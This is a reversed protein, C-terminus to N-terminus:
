RCLPQGEFALMLQKNKNIIEFSNKGHEHLSFFLQQPPLALGAWVWEEEANLVATECNKYIRQKAQLYNDMNGHRDLHDPTVNLIVAAKAKLSYITELQFSSLEMVYYDPKEECLTDLAAEGINGCVQVTLGAAEIVQGMLATVTTKGNSGTIAVIPSEAAQVFLEVDGVIQIGERAAAQLEPCALSVGPSVVILQAKCLIDQDLGGLITNVDPFDKQLQELGPPNARTDMVVLSDKGQLYRVCSLGTKGLGVIVIM